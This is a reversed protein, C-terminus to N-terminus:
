WAFVLSPGYLSLNTIPWPKRSWSRVLRAIHPSFLLLPEPLRFSRLFRSKPQCDPSEDAMKMTPYKGKVARSGLSSVLLSSRCPSQRDLPKIQHHDSDSATPPASPDQSRRLLSAFRVIPLLNPPYSRHQCSERERKRSTGITHLGNIRYNTWLRSRKALLCFPIPV